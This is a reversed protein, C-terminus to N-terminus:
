PRRRLRMLLGTLLVAGVALLIGFGPTQGTTTPTSPQTTVPTDTLTPTPDHTTPSESETQTPSHEHDSGHGDVTKTATPSEHDHGAIEDTRHLAFRTQVASGNVTVARDTAADFHGDGNAVYAIAWLSFREGRHNYFHDDIDVTVDHHTGAALRTHGVIEGPGGGSNAAIVLYGDRALEVHRVTVVSTNVEQPHDTEALILTRSGNTKGITFRAVVPEGAASDQIPDEAPDFGAGGENRHVAAWLTTHNTVNRWYATDIAVSLETHIPDDGPDTHGVVRGIAGADDTHLAVFGDTVLTLLEITVTGDTSTQTDVAIANGHAAVPVASVILIAFLGVALRRM